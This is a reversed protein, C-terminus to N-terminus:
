YKYWRGREDYGGQIPIVTKESCNRYFVSKFTYIIPFLLFIAVLLFIATIVIGDFGLIANFQEATLAQMATPTMTTLPLLRDYFLG